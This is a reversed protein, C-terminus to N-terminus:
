RAAESERLLRETRMLGGLQQPTIPAASDLGIPSWSGEGKGDCDCYREPRRMLLGVHPITYCVEVCDCVRSPHVHAVLVELGRVYHVILLGSDTVVSNM